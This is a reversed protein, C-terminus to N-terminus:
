LKILRQSKKDDGSNITLDRSKFVYWFFQVEVDIVNPFKGKSISVLDQNSLSSKRDIKINSIAYYGPINHFFEKLFSMASADDLASFRLITKTHLVDIKKTNFIGTKIPEPLSLKIDTGVIFHKKSIVNIMNNIEDMNIGDLDKKNERLSKWIEIYKTIEKQQGELERSKQELSSVETKVSKLKKDLADKEKNNLLVGVALLLVVVLAITFNKITKKRLDIAKM